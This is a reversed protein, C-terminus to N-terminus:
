VKNSLFREVAIDFVYKGVDSFRDLLKEYDKVYAKKVEAKFLEQRFRFVNGQKEFLCDRRDVNRIKPGLKKFKRSTTAKVEIM